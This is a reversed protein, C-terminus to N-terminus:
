STEYALPELLRRYGTRALRTLEHHMRVSVLRRSRVAALEAARDIRSLVGDPLSDASGGQRLHTRLRRRLGDANLHFATRVARWTEANAEELLDPRAHRCCRALQELGELAGPVFRRAKGVDLPNRAEAHLDDLVSYGLSGDCYDPDCRMRLETALAYTAYLMRDIMRHAIERTPGMTGVIAKRRLRRVQERSGEFGALWPQNEEGPWLIVQSNFLDTDHLVNLREVASAVEIAVMRTAFGFWFRQALRRPALQVATVIGAMGAERRALQLARSGDFQEDLKTDSRDLYAGDRWDELYRLDLGVEHLQTIQSHFTTLARTARAHFERRAAELADPAAAAITADDADRELELTCEDFMPRGARARLICEHRFLRNWLHELHADIESKRYDEMLNLDSAQAVTLMRSSILTPIIKLAGGGLLMASGVLLPLAIAQRVELGPLAFQKSVLGLAAIGATLMTTRLARRYILNGVQYMIDLPALLRVFDGLIARWNYRIRAM